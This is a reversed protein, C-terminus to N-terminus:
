RRHTKSRGFYNGAPENNGSPSGLRDVICRFGITNASLNGQMYRRTGPSLWYARDAWSGGKYVKTSDNILTNEGYKYAGYIFANGGYSSDGDKYNNLDGTRGRYRGSAQLEANTVETYPINGTSDREEVTGDEQFKPRM